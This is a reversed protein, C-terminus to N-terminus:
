NCTKKLYDLAQHATNALYRIVEVPYKGVATEGTVMISSAGDTVAHFIDSVEARTPVPRTEMSALMQTVVMFPMNNKSCIEALEKQVRPLEWLPMSNGLDGRAIVIEDALDLYDRIRRVGSMNEIKALLSLHGCGSEEMAKRVEVLDERSRVFPQMIGTVGYDPANKLNERDQKTLVPTRIERGPLAISKRSELRGGRLVKCVCAPSGADERAPGEPPASIVELLIKGDDMLVSQGAALYPLIVDPVPIGGEGLIVKDGTELLPPEQLSGIRLEPGQMDILLDPKVIGAEASAKHYLEIMDSADRLSIHSLNLRMGTMGAEFMQRLTSADLCAPGITGYIKISNENLVTKTNKGNNM